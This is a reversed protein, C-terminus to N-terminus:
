PDGSFKRSEKVTRGRSSKGKAGGGGLIRSFTNNKPCNNHLMPANQQNEMCIKRAFIDHRRSTSQAGVRRHGHFVTQSQSRSNDYSVPFIMSYVSDAFNPSSPSSAAGRGQFYKASAQSWIIIDVQIIDRSTTYTNLQLLGLVGVSFM